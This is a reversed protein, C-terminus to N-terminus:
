SMLLALVMRMKYSLNFDCVLLHSTLSPKFQTKTSFYFTNGMMPQAPPHTAKSWSATVSMSKVLETSMASTLRSNQPAAPRPPGTGPRAKEVASNSDGGRHLCGPDMHRSIPTSPGPWLPMNVGPTCGVRKTYFSLSVRSPGCWCLLSLM